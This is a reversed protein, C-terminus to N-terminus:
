LRKTPCNPDIKALRDLTANFERRAEALDPSITEALNSGCSFEDAIRLYRRYIRSAKSKLLSVQADQILGM